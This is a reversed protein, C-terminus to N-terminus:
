LKVLQKKEIWEDLSSPYGRYHVKYFTKKGRKKTALIDVQYEKDDSPPKIEQLEQEYFNGVLIEGNESKLRYTVPNTARREIIIFHEQTFNPSTTSKEFTGKVRTIRVTAGKDYKFKAKLPFQDFYLRERLENENDKTVDIPKMNTVSHRSSNYADVLDDLKDIYRFTNAKHFWKTMRMKLTRNWREILSAKVDSSVFYLKIKYKNLVEGVDRNFFENGQDGQIIRPHVGNEIFIDELAKAVDKGTKRRVPKAFAMRSLVDICTLIFNMNDNYRSVHTMDALDIQWNDHLSRAITKRRKFKKHRPKYLTYVDQGSLWQKIDTLKTTPNKIKAAKFLKQASAYGAPNKLNYFIDSFLKEGM